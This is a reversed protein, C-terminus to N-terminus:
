NRLLRDWDLIGKRRIYLTKEVDAVIRGKEDQITTHYTRETRRKIEIEQKISDIEEKNISFEVTVTGTGQRQFRISASKDWVFYDDGLGKLLLLTYFPDTMAYLSGGFHSGAYNKNWNRLKMRVIVRGSDEPFTVRIGAGLFPPYFNILKLKLKRFNM